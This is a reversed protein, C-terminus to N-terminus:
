KRPQPRVTKAGPKPLRDGVDALGEVVAANRRAIRAFGKTIAPHAAVAKWFRVAAAHVTPWVGGDGPGPLSPEFSPEAPGAGSPAYAMPLVDYAPALGDLRAGKSYFSLNGTHRDTNAILGGFLELWRIAERDTAALVGEAVLESAAASWSALTVGHELAISTLSLVGRRGIAGMRDFREVELFLREKGKVIQSRAAPQGGGALVGLAVHECVLLDGWRRSTADRLLPSFKVLVSTPGSERTVLFKPQEGAASSGAVGLSLIDDALAEYRARRSRSTVRGASSRAKQLFAGFAEDGVIFSGPVDWGFRTLYVLTDEASWLRVDSPLGLEPHRRPVLRGLFGAPRADYLFFPLDDCFESDIDGVMSEVYFGRPEVAHLTAAHRTEGGEDVEYIPAERGTGRIERRAAYRTSPGRGVVLLDQGMRSALRSYTPQSVGLHQRAAQATSPGRAGLFRRLTQALRDYDIKAPM